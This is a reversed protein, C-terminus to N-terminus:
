SALFLEPEPNHSAEQPTGTAVPRERGGGGPDHFHVMDQADVPV